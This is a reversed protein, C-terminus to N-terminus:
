STYTQEIVEAHLRKGDKLVRKMEKQQEKSLVNINLYHTDEYTKKQLMTLRYKLLDEFNKECDQLLKEYYKLDILEKMRSLTSTVFVGEKISLLRVANVYPLFASYKLNISGQYPGHREVLIQGIPGIVNKIHEINASFRRLISPHQRVFQYIFKKLEDIFNRKGCLARADYFIQLNRIAEWGEDIMWENLQQRWHELSKCWLPNSSMVNGKCYPYGVIQLGLALEEGLKKFYADNKVDSTEYVIGHDQDSILGQERRGGSGTIFWTFGCPPDGIKGQALSMVKLMVQDHFDNLSGTDTLSSMIYMDKWDRISEYQKVIM